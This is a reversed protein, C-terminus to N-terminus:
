FRILEISLMLSVSNSDSKNYIYSWSGELLIKENCLWETHIKEKLAKLHRANAGGQMNYSRCQLCVHDHHRSVMSMCEANSVRQSPFWRNDGASQSPLDTSEGWLPGTVRLKSTKKTTMRFLCDRQRHNYVGHCDHSTITIYTKSVKGPLLVTDDASVLTAQSKSM